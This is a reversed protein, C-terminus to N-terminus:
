SYSVSTQDEVGISELALRKYAAGDVFMGAELKLEMNSLVRYMSGQGNSNQGDSNTAREVWGYALNVDVEFFKRPGKGKDRIAENYKANVKFPGKAHPLHM